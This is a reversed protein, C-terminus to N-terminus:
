RCFGEKKANSIKIPTTLLTMTLFVLLGVLLSIILNVQLNFTNGIVDFFCKSIAIMVLSSMLPKIISKYSIKIKEHKLLMFTSYISAVIHCVLTATAAGATGGLMLDIRPVLVKNLIAKIVVGATVAQIPILNKGIGNLIVNTIQEVTIFVIQLSSIRLIEGGSSANPFLLLLIENSFTWFIFTIPFAITLGLQFSQNVRKKQLELNGNTEAISPLLATVIAMNFSLPFNVLTDVKGSLIGYQQKAAEYGILNKLESVITTSDINKSITTIIATLSIPIAVYTIQKIIQTIRITESKKSYKIEYKIIPLESIYTKYLFLLEIVNGLTTALNSIAALQETNTKKTIMISIEIMVITSITKTLQDFSQAKATMKISKRGSFYGKFVSIVSVLFISPCLAIISLKTEQIHLYSNALTESFMFLITSGIMGLCSFLVLAVRFIKFAGRYDGKSLTEAILKSIATPIGIAIISLVLAYVQFGGNAIANGEDGFGNRNTLYLKYLLGLVKVVVQSMMLAFVSQSFTEITKSKM